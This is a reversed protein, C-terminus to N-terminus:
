NKIFLIPLFDVKATSFSDEFTVNVIFNNKSISNYKFIQNIENKIQELNFAKLNSKKELNQKTSILKWTNSSDTLLLELYKDENSTDWNILIYCLKNKDDKFKSFIKEDSKSTM